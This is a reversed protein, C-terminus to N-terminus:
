LRKKNKEELEEVWVEKGCKKCYFKFKSRTTLKRIDDENNVLFIMNNEM